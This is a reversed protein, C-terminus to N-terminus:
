REEYKGKVKIAACQHLPNMKKVKREREALIDM